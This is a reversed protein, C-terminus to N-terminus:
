VATREVDRINSQRQSETRACSAEHTHKFTVAPGPGVCVRGEQDERAEGGRM